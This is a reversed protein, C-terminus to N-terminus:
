HWAVAMEQSSLMECAWPVHQMKPNVKKSCDVAMCPPGDM